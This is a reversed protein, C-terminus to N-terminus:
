AAEKEYIKFWDKQGFQGLVFGMESMCRNNETTRALGKLKPSTGLQDCNLYHFIEQVQNKM